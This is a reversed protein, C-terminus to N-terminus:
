SLKHCSHDSSQYSGMRIIGLPASITFCRANQNNDKTRLFITKNTTTNGQFGYQIIGVAGTYDLTIADPLNIDGSRLCGQQGDIKHSDKALTLTCSQNQRIAERQSEQLGAVVMETAQNLKARNQVAILSPIGIALLIGVIALVILSELLTFGLQRNVNSHLM